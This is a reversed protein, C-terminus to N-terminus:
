NDILVLKDVFIINKDTLRLFYVGNPLNDRFLTITKGSINKIEKVTQGFCDQLTLTANNLPFDSQLTTQTSIPNPYINLRNSVLIQIVGTLPTGLSFDKILVTQYSTVNVRIWGYQIGSTSSDRVGVYQDYSKIWTPDIYSIGCGPVSESLGLYGSSVYKNDSITDGFIFPSLINGVPTWGPGGCNANYYTSDSKWFFFRIASDLSIIKVNRTTSGPSIAFQASIEIDDIGNQNIDINYYEKDNGGSHSSIPNLLTDPVIDVYISEHMGALTYQSQASITMISMFTM